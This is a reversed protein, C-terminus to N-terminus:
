CSDVVPICIDGGEQVDRRSEKVDWGELNNCLGKSNGSDYLLDWPGDVKCVTIYTEIDSKGFM